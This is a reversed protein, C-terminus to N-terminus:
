LERTITYGKVQSGRASVFNTQPGGSGILGSEEGGTYGVSDMEREPRKKKNLPTEFNKRMELSERSFIIGKLPKSLLVTKM